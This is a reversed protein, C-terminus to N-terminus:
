EHLRAPMPKIEFNESAMMRDVFGTNYKGARFEGNRM